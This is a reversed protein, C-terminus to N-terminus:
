GKVVSSPMIHIAEDIIANHWLVSGQGIHSFRGIHCHHDVIAGSNIIVYDDIKAFTNIIAGKLVIIGKGLIADRSILSSKDILNLYNLDNLREAVQKRIKPNGIAIVFYTNEDDYKNAESIKGLLPYDYNEDCVKDDDLFGMIKYDRYLENEKILDILVTSFTGAGILIIKKM